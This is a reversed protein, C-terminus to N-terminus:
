GRDRRGALPVDASAQNPRLRPESSASATRPRRGTPCSAPRTADDGDRGRLAPVAPDLLVEDEPELVQTLEWRLRHMQAPTMWCRFVSYQMRQGSGELVGACRRLRAPDHVDYCVLWWRADNM